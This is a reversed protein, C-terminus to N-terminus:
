GARLIICVDEKECHMEFAIESLPWGARWLAGVKGKDINNINVKKPKAAEKIERIINSVRGPSCGVEKAIEGNRLGAQHLEMVKDKDIGKKARTTDAPKKKTKKKTTAM